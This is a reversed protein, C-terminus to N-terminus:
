AKPMFVNPRDLTACSPHTTKVAQVAVSNNKLGRRLLYVNLLHCIGGRLHQYRTKNSIVGIYLGNSKLHLKAVRETVTIANSYSDLGTLIYCLLTNVNVGLQLLNTFSLHCCKPNFLERSQDMTVHQNVLGQKTNRSPFVYSLKIHTTHQLSTDCNNDTM